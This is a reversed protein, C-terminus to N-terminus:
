HDLWGILSGSAPRSGRGQLPPANNPVCVLESSVRVGTPITPSAESWCSTKEKGGSGLLILIGQGGQTGGCGEEVCKVEGAEAMNTRLM